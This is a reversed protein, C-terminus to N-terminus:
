CNARSEYSCAAEEQSGESSDALQRPGDRSSSRSYGSHQRSRRLRHFEANTALTSTLLLSRMSWMTLSRMYEVHSETMMAAELLSDDSYDDMLRDLESRDFELVAIASLFTAYPVEAPANMADALRMTAALIKIIRAYDVAASLAECIAAVVRAERNLQHVDARSDYDLLRADRIHQV